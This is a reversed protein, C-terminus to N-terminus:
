LRGARWRFAVGVSSQGKVTGTVGSGPGLWLDMLGDWVGTSLSIQRGAVTIVCSGTAVVTPVVPRGGPDLPPLTFSTGATSATVQVVTNALDLRYPDVTAKMLFGAMQGRWRISHVDARGRWVFAEDGVGVEIVRGHWLGRWRDLQARPDGTFARCALSVTRDDFTPQGATDVTSLDLRGSRGKIQVLTTILKPATVEYEEVM